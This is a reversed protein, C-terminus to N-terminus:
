DPGPCPRDGRGGGAGGGIDGGIRVPGLFITQEYDNINIHGPRSQWEGGLKPLRQGWRLVNDKTLFEESVGM